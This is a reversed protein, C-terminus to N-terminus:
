SFPCLHVRNTHSIEPSPAPHLPGKPHRPPAAPLLVGPFLVNRQRHPQLGPPAPVTCEPDPLLWVGLSPADRCSPPFTQPSVLPHIHSFRSSHYFFSFPFPNRIHTPRCVHPGVSSIWWRGVAGIKIHKVYWTKRYKSYYCLSFPYPPLYVASASVAMCLSHHHLGPIMLEFGARAKKAGSSRSSSIGPTPGAQVTRVWSPRSRSCVSTSCCASPTLLLRPCCSTSSNSATRRSSTIASTRTLPPCSAACKM